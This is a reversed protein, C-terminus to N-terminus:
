TNTKKLPLSFFFLTGENLTSQVDIRGGMLEVLKKSISLGLGSGGYKRATSSHEQTYPTFLKSLNDSKIGIGTDQVEWRYIDENGKQRHVRVQVSGKETFKVANGVINTLIQRIRHSDGYLEEPVNAAISVSFELNKKQCEMLFMNELYIKIDHPKFPHPDIELKGSDIKTFDLLDNILRLLTGSCQRIINVYERQEKPIPSDALFDTFGIIGNLPTRIEHSVLSFFHARQVHTKKADTRTNILEHKAAATQCMERTSQICAYSLFVGEFAIWGALETWRLGLSSSPVMLLHSIYFERLAHSLLIFISASFLLRWERYLALFALSGFIHFYAEVSGNMLQIFLASFGMQGFAIVYRGIKQGPHFVAFYLPFSTIVAGLLVGTWVPGVGQASSGRANVSSNLLLVIVTLWQLLMLYAFARDLGKCLRFKQNLFLRETSM